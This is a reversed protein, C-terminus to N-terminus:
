HNFRSNDGSSEYHNDRRTETDRREPFNDGGHRRNDKREQVPSRHDYSDYVRHDSNNYPIAPTPIVFARPIFPVPVPYYQRVVHRHDERLPYQAPYFHFSLSSYLSALHDFNHNLHGLSRNRSSRLFDSELRQYYRALDSFQSHLTSSSRGREISDTLQAAKRSLQQARNNVSGYGQVYRVNFALQDSALQLQSALRSIEWDTALAVVPTLSLLAVLLVNKM